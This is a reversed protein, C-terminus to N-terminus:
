FRQVVWGTGPVGKDMEFIFGNDDQGGVLTRWHDCRSLLLMEIFDFSTDHKDLLQIRMGFMKCGLERICIQESVGLTIADPAADDPLAVGDNSCFCNSGFATGQSSFFAICNCFLRSGISMKKDVRVVFDATGGSVSGSEVHM